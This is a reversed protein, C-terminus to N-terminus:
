VPAGDRVSGIAVVPVGHSRMAQMVADALDEDESLLIAMRTRRNYPLGAGDPGKPDALIVWAPDSAARPPLSLPSSDPKHRQQSPTLATWWAILRVAVDVTDPAATPVGFLRRIEQRLLHGLTAADTDANLRGVVVDALHDHRDDAAAAGLGVPDWAALVRRVVRRAPGLQAHSHVSNRPQRPGTVPDALRGPRYVALSNM